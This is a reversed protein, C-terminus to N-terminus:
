VFKFDAAVLNALAVGNLVISDTADLRIAVDAGVQSMAGQLAAFSGFDNAAFQITDHTPGSAVFNDITENGFNGSYEFLDKTSANIVGTIEGRSDDVTDSNKLTLNGHIAGTNTLTESGALSVNGYIQGHNTLTSTGGKMTVNGTIAGANTLTNKSTSGTFAVAGDIDGSASNTFSDAGSAVTVAGDIKGANDITDGGGSFTVAGSITGANSITDSGAAMSIGAEITGTNTLADDSAGLSWGYQAGSDQWLGSNDIDVIAGAAAYLGGHITGSNAISLHDSQTQIVDGAGSITGKNDITTTAYPDDFYLVAAAGGQVNAASNTIVGSNVIDVGVSSAISSIGSSGSVGGGAITGSNDISEGAVNESLSIGTSGSINGSNVVSDGGGAEILVATTGSINGANFLSDSTATGPGITALGSGGAGVASISGQSGVNVVDDTTAYVGIYGGEVAGNVSLTSDSGSMYVGDGVGEDVSYVLGDITIAANNATSFVGADSDTLVISGASTVLLEDFTSSLDEGDGSSVADFTNIYISEAM